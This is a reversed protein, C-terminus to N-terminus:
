ETPRLMQLNQLWRGSRQETIWKEVTRIQVLDIFDDSRHVPPKEETSKACADKADCSAVKGELLSNKVRAERIRRRFAQEIVLDDL